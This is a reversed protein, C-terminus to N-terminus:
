KRDRKKTEVRMDILRKHDESLQEWAAALQKAGDRSPYSARQAAAVVDETTRLRGEFDAPPTRVTVGLFVYFDTDLVKSRQDSACFRFAASALMRDAELQMDRPMREAEGNKKPSKGAGSALRSAEELGRPTLSFTKNAARVFGSRKLPGYLPKHLDSSDPYQPYGRLAFEDPFLELATVVIDEYKLSRPTGGSLRYMARLSKEPREHAARSAM